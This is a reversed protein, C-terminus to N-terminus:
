TAQHVMKASLLQLDPVDELVFMQKISEILFPIVRGVMM